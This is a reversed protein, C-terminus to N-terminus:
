KKGTGWELVEVKVETIGVTVMDLEKAVGLSLDIIRDPRFPMRDNIKIIVSKDNSLNTVRIVTGMQYTPHAASLGNMDYVEGNYTILGNYKDAYYSAVGIVTELVPANKYQDLNEFRKQTKDEFRSAGSTFRPASACAPLILLITLILIFFVIRYMMIRIINSKFYYLSRDFAGEAELQV